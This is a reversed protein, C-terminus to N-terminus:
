VNARLRHRRAALRSANSSARRAAVPRATLDTQCSPRVCTAVGLAQIAAGLDGLFESGPAVASVLLRDRARTCAVYLLHRETEFVDDLDSEEVVADIREALPLVDEDCAMVAVAKFELGKALHMTGIAARDGLTIARESLEVASLGAAEVAARARDLERRSRVFVGIEAPAVGDAVAARIFSAVVAIESTEGGSLSVQPPPGEFVSITGKREEERDDVCRKRPRARRPDLRPPRV